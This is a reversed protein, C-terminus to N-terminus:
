RIRWSSLPPFYPAHYTSPRRGKLTVPIIDLFWFPDLWVLRGLWWITFLLKGIIFNIYRVETEDGTKGEGEQTPQSDWEFVMCEYWKYVINTLLDDAPGGFAYGKSLCLNYAKSDCLLAHTNSYSYKFRLEVM